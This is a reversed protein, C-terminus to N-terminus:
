KRRRPPRICDASPMVSRDRADSYARQYADSAEGPTDFSGLRYVRGGLGIEARYKNYHRCVGLPLGNTMRKARSYIAGARGPFVFDFSFAEILSSVREDIVFWEGRKRLSKFQRHLRREDNPGAPILAAMRLDFPSGIQLQELRAKPAKSYGIKAFGAEDAVIIYGSM